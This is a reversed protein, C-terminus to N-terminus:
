SAQREGSEANLQNLVVLRYSEGSKANGVLMFYKNERAHGDLMM